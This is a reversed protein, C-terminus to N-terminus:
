KELAKKLDAVFKTQQKRLYSKVFPKMIIKKATVFETFDIQTKNGRSTFIGTWRGKINSNEMDFELREYPEEVTITFSTSFGDKTYETFQKENIVETIFTM